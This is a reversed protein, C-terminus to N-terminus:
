TFSAYHKIYLSRKHIELALVSPCKTEQQFRPGRFPIMLLSFTGRFLSGRMFLLKQNTATAIIGAIKRQADTYWTLGSLITLGWSHIDLNMTDSQRAAMRNYNRRSGIDRSPSHTRIRRTNRRFSGPRKGVAVAFPSNPSGTGNVIVPLSQNTIMKQSNRATIRARTRMKLLGFRGSPCRRM